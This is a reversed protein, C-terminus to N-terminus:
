ERSHITKRRYMLQCRKLSPNYTALHKVIGWEIKPIGGEDKVHWVAKSLETSTKHKKQSFSSNHNNFRYKWQLATVGVYRKADYNPLNSTITATYLVNESLCQNNLPCKSKNRCNCTDKTQKTSDDAKYIVHKNHANVISKINPM